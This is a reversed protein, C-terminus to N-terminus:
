IFGPALGLRDAISFAIYAAIVVPIFQLGILGLNKMEGWFTESAANTGGCLTGISMLLGAATVVPIMYSVGTQLHNGMQRMTENFSSEKAM